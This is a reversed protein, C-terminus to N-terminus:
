EIVRNARLLISSPIALGLAKATKLNVVLEFRAAQDVPLEGPNAGNLVKALLDAGRRVEDLLNAGYSVLAGYEVATSDPFLVPIQKRTAKEVVNAGVLPSEPYQFLAIMAQAKSKLAQEIRVPRYELLEIGMQAAASLFAKRQAQYHTDLEYGLLVVRSVGPILEHVLELRKQLLEALRNSVGTFNGGPVAYSEVIGAALPDAVWAFVVPVTKTAGHAARVARDGSVFLADAQASILARVTTRDQHFEGYAARADLRLNSGAVFGHAGLREELAALYPKMTSGSVNFLAGVRYTRGPQQSRAVAAVFLAGSAALFRRRLVQGM